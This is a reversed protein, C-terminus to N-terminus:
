PKGRRAATEGWDAMEDWQRMHAEVNARLTSGEASGDYAARLHRDYDGRVSRHMAPHGIIAAAFHAAGDGDGAEIARDIWALGQVGGSEGPKWGLDLGFQGLAGAFYGADLWALELARPAADTAEAEATRALLRALLENCRGADDNLCITVRRITEMHLLPDQSGDLVRLTDAIAQTDTYRKSPAGRADDWPLSEGVCEVPECIAPPGLSATGAAGALSAGGASGVVVAGALGLVIARMRM